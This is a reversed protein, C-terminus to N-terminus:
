NSDQAPPTEIRVFNAVVWGEVGEENSVMQWTRGDAEASGNLIQVRDGKSFEGIVDCGLGPAVRFKVNDGTITGYLLFETEQVEPFGPSQCPDDTGSSTAASLLTSWYSSNPLTDWPNPMTDPTVYIWGANRQKSLSVANRLDSESTTHILHWFRDAPYDWEWATAPLGSSSVYAEYTDEFTVIIDATTIYAAETRTGPNIVVIRSGSKSKVYDHIEQYYAIKAPDDDNAAEDFFIGDVGYWQYYADVDTKVDSLSRQGYDTYVYGLVSLGASQSSQIQNAYASDIATGPGSSPNIIALRVGDNVSSDLQPWFSPPYFYSPVAVLQSPWSVLASASSPAGDTSSSALALQSWTGIAYSPILLCIIMGCLAIRSPMSRMNAICRLKRIAGVQSGHPAVQRCARRERILHCKEPTRTNWLCIPRINAANSLARAVRCAVSSGLSQSRHHPLIFQIM